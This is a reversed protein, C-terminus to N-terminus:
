LTAQYAAVIAQASQDREFGLCEALSTDFASPWTGVIAEIAPDRKLTVRARADAPLAELLESVKATVGPVNLASFSPWDDQPVELAHVLAQIAIDPSALWMALGPDVPCTTDEGNLPERIIGSAFSSAAANPRGPRVIITPLRLTRAEAYGKRRHGSMLMEDVAKTMGYTNQPHTATQETLVDPLAGGYVALSSTTIVPLRCDQARAAALVHRTGEVNVAMALDFDQEAQGSVIAALHYVAATQGDM